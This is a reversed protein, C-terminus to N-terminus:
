EMTPKRTARVDAIMELGMVGASAELFNISACPNDKDGHQESMTAYVAVCAYILSTLAGFIAIGLGM